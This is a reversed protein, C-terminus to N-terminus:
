QSFRPANGDGAPNNISILAGGVCAANVEHLNEKLPLFTMAKVGRAYWLIPDAWDSGLTWVNRRTNAM